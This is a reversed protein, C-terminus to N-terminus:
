LMEWSRVEEGGQLAFTGSTEPNSGKAPAALVDFAPRKNLNKGNEDGGNVAFSEAETFITL